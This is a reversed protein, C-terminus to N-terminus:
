LHPVGRVAATRLDTDIVRLMARVVEPDYRIGSMERLEEIADDLHRAARYPRHSTMADFMDAVAIIRAELCIEEGSIGLPYGSGDFNEHHQHVMDAIRWPFAVDRLVDYGAASHGRIMEMELPSLRGPRTLIEAPVAIKGIDHIGAGLLLGQRQDDDLGLEDAIRGCWRVAGRQHGATYPDRHEILRAIAEIVSSFAGVLRQGHELLEDRAGKVATIHEHTAILRAWPHDDVRSVTLLFWRPVGAADCRYETQFRPLVGALVGRFGAAVRRATDIEFDTAGSTEAWAAAGDLLQLYNLGVGYAPLRSGNADAFERWAANVEVILGHSDCLAVHASLADIVAQLHANSVDSRIDDTLM